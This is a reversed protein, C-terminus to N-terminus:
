AAETESQSETQTKLQAILRNVIAVAKDFMKGQMYTPAQIVDNIAHAFNVEFTYRDTGKRNSAGFNKVLRGFRENLEKVHLDANFYPM